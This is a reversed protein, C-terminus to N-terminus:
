GGNGNGADACIGDNPRRILVGTAQTRKGDVEVRAHGRTGAVDRDSATAPRSRLVVAVDSLEVDLDAVARANAITAAIKARNRVIGADAMLRGVDADGYRAIKAVDFDDFARRFNDRKRLIILWSLGSQFAELTM